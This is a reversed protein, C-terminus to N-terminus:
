LYLMQLIEKHYYNKLVHKIDYRSILNVKYYTDLLDYLEKNVTLGVKYIDHIKNKVNKTIGYPGKSGCIEDTIIIDYTIDINGVIIISDDRKINSSNDELFYQRIYSTNKVKKFTAQIKVKNINCIKDAFRKPENNIVNFISKMDVITITGQNIIIKKLYEGQGFKRYPIYDFEDDGSEDNLDLCVSIDEDNVLLSDTSAFRFTQLLFYCLTYIDNLVYHLLDKSLGNGNDHVKNSSSDISHSNENSNYVSSGNKNIYDDKNFNLLKLLLNKYLNDSLLDSTNM